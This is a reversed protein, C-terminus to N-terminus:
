TKVFEYFFGGVENTSESKLLSRGSILMKRM